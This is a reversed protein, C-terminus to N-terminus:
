WSIIDVLSYVINLIKMKTWRHAKKIDEKNIIYSVNINVDVM